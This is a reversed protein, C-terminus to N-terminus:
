TTGTRTGAHRMLPSVGAARPSWPRWSKSARPTPSVQPYTDRWRATVQRAVAEAVGTQKALAPAGGGFLTGFTARKSLTRQEGTFADGYMLMATADHIDAGSAIVGTLTPDKSLGAAVRVEVQAFDCSILM